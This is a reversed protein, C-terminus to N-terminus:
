RRSTASSRPAFGLLARGNARAGVEANTPVEAPAGGTRDDEDGGPAERRARGGSCSIRTRAPEPGKGAMGLIRARRRDAGTVGAVSQAARILPAAEIGAMVPVAAANGRRDRDRGRRESLLTSVAAWCRAGLGEASSLVELARSCLAVGAARAAADRRRGRANGIGVRPRPGFQALALAALSVSRRRAWPHGAGRRRKGSRRRARCRAGRARPRGAATGRRLRGRLRGRARRAAGGRLQPHRGLRPEGARGARFSAVPWEPLLTEGINRSAHIRLPVATRGPARVAVEARELAPWRGRARAPVRRPRGAAAADVGRSRRRLLAHGVRRELRRSGNPRRRSRTLQLADAAGQVTGSEVATVFAALEGGALPDALSM